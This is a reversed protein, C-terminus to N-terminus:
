RIIFISEILQQIFQHILKILQIFQVLTFPTGNRFFNIVNICVFKLKQAVDFYKEHSVFNKLDICCINIYLM